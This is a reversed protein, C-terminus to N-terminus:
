RIVISLPTSEVVGRPSRVYRTLTIAYKGPRSLDFIQTINLSVQKNGRPQLRLTTRRCTMEFISTIRRGNATLPPTDGKGDVVSVKYDLSECTLPFEVMKDTSNELLIILVIQEGSKFIYQQDKPQISLYVAPSQEAVSQATRSSCVIQGTVNDLFLLLCLAIQLIDLVVFTKIGTIRSNM